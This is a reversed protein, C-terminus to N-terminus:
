MTQHLTSHQWSHLYLFPNNMSILLSADFINKEESIGKKRICLCDILHNQQWFTTLSLHCCVTNSNNSKGLLWFCQFQYSKGFLFQANRASLLASKATLFTLSYSVIFPLARMEMKVTQCNVTSLQCNVTQCFHNPSNTKTNVLLRQCLGRDYTLGTVPPDQFHLYHSDHLFHFHFSIDTPFHFCKINTSYQYLLRLHSLSLSNSSKFTFIPYIIVSM